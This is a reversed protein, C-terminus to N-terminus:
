VPDASRTTEGRFLWDLPVEIVPREADHMESRYVRAYYRDDRPEAPGQYRVLETSGDPWRCVM